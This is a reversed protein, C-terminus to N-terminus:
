CVLHEASAANTPARDAGHSSPEARTLRINPEPPDVMRAVRNAGSRRITQTQRNGDQLDRGRNSEQFWKVTAVLGFGVLPIWLLTRIVGALPQFVPASRFIAPIILMGVLSAGALFASVPWRSQLAIELITPENRRRPMTRASAISRAMSADRTLINLLDVHKSLCLSSRPIVTKRCILGGRGRQRFSKCRNGVLADSDALLVM